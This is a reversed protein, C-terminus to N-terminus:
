KSISVEINSTAKILNGLEDCEFVFEVDNPFRIMSVAIDENETNFFLDTGNRFYIGDNDYGFDLDSRDDEVSEETYEDEHIDEKVENVPEIGSIRIKM